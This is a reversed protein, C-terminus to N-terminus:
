LNRLKDLLTKARPCAAEVLTPTLRSLLEYSVKGKAYAKTCNATAQNLAAFVSSKSVAELVPWQPLHQERLAAGFYDRLLQRDAMFWTEMVQVMLFADDNGSGPPKDWNDRAKLHQWVTRGAQVPDESDVLLLPVEGARPNQVATVFLDFTQSRGEGRVVRPLRGELGASLFFERWAARFLSDYLQGPGGGEAYIKASV